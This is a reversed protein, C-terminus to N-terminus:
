GNIIVIGNRSGPIAGKVMIEGKEKDVAAITLNLITVQEGGMRGAMRMGPFVRQPATPGISGPARLDHKHGHTAPSGHFHHRKVVGAYGRGKSTGAVSVNDGVNFVSVDHKQGVTFASTDELRMECLKPRSLLGKVHGALSKTTHKGAESFGFQVASYGDTKVTKIQTVVGEGAKVITVPIVQGSESYFQTMKIKRGLILKM